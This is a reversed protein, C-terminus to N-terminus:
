LRSQIMTEFREKLRFKLIKGSSNRPLERVHFVRRPRKYGALGHDQCWSRVQTLSLQGTPCILACCVAEGFKEDALAFVACEAVDANELLVREVESALVTEGGTRIVDNVRGCFYLRGQADWFGLDNTFMWEDRGITAHNNKRRTWYGNMIHPGRSAIVGATFPAQIIFKSGHEDVRFLGIEIHQSPFGVCDGTLETDPALPSSNDNTVKLFTLSSAAETCAYTQVVRANPFVRALFRLTLLAASQGGILILEVGPCSLAQTSAVSKELAHLMAPVVVLTNVSDWRTSNSSANTSAVSRWVQHPDFGTVGKAEVAPFVLTGGALWVAATSSLGGVHFFPVTTALMTTTASYFCPSQLKALAQRLVAAHSLRVGKSGSTSTTGSTFVLLADELEDRTASIRQIMEDVYQRDVGVEVTNNATRTRGRVSLFATSSLPWVLAQQQAFMPLPLCIASHHLKKAVQRATDAYDPGHILITCDKITASELDSELVAVMESVTWRTNMLAPTRAAVAADADSANDYDNRNTCAFVSLIFDASNSAVYGVILRPSRLDSSAGTSTQNQRTARVAQQQLWGIHEQLAAHAAGYTLVRVTAADNSGYVVCPKDSYLRAPEDLLSSLRM